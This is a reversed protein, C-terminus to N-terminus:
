DLLRVTLIGGGPVVFGDGADHGSADRGALGGSPGNADGDPTPGRGAAGDAPQSPEAAQGMRRELRPADDDLELRYRAHPEYGDDLLADALRDYVQRELSREISRGAGFSRVAEDVIRERMLPGLEFGIRYRELWDHGLADLKVTVIADLDERGLPDFHIIADLRNLFEPRFANRITNDRMRRIARELEDGSPAEAGFGLPKRLHDVARSGLNSTMVIITNWLVAKEGKAGHVVGSDLAGLLFDHAAWHAKEIEDFLLVVNTERQLETILRGPREHGVYGPPAGVLRAVEHERQYDACDFRVLAHDGGFVETALARALETKGVGTPGVFLFVGQPRSLRGLRVSRRRIARVVSSIAERQGVIRRGLRDELSNLRDREGASVLALPLATARAIAREVQDVDVAPRDPHAAARILSVAAGPLAGPMGFREVLRVAADLAEPAADPHGAVESWAALAERALDADAAPVEIRDLERMPQLAVGAPEDSATIIVPVEEPVPFPIPEGDTDVLLLGHGTRSLWSALGECAAEREEVTLRRLEAVSVEVSSRGAHAATVRALQRKGAGAPGVLLVDRGEAWRHRLEASLADRGALRGTSAVITGIPPETLLAPLAADADLRPLELPADADLLDTM